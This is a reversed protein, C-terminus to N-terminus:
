PAIPPVASLFRDALMQLDYGERRIRVDYYFVAAAVIAFPTFFLSTMGATVIYVAPSKLLYGALMGGGVTVLSVGIEVGALALALAFGRWFQGTSFMRAFADGFAKVPDVQEVVVAIFSMAAILYMMITLVVAGAGVGILIVAAIVGLLVNPGLFAGVAVALAAGFGIILAVAFVAIFAFIVWLVLLVLMAFWRRLAFRYSDAVLVPLGLYARSVAAIVAAQAVPFGFFLLGYQLGLLSDNPVYNRLKALDPTASPSQIAHQITSFYADFLDRSQYYSLITSPVVVIAVMATFAAIHKFYLHFARDLLEGLSLPRM